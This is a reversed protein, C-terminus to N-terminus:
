GARAGTIAAPEIPEEVVRGDGVRLRRNCGHLLLPRHSIIVVITGPDLNALATEIHQESRADLASSPEDLVLLSPRALLARAIGLRQRQGGSLSSHGEGVPTDLGQPLARIEDLLNATALAREVEADTADRYLRVNEAVTGRLLMPEQGVFAVSGAWATPDYEAIPHGNILLRGDTPATLRVLMAALTSKGSGSAGVIAVRDGPALSVDVGSVVPEGDPGPDYAYAVQDFTVSRVADIPRDGFRRRSARSEELYEDIEGLLPLAEIATQVNGNLQQVYSLSRLLLLAATGVGAVTLGTGRAFAVAVIISSMLSLQYLPSVFRQLFKQQSFVHALSANSRQLVALSQEQVAYLEIERQLASFSTADLQLTAIASAHEKARRKMMRRLPGFAAVLALVLVVILVLLQPATVVIISFYVTLAAGATLVTAIVVVPTAAATGNTALLRQLEGLRRSRHQEWPTHFGSELLAGRATRVAVLALSATFRSDVYRLLGTAVALGIGLVCGQYFGIDDIGAFGIQLRDEGDVFALLLRAALLLVATESMTLAGALIPSLFLRKRVPGLWRWAYGATRGFVTRRASSLPNM